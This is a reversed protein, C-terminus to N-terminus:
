SARTSAGPAAAMCGGRGPTPRGPMKWIFVTGSLHADDTHIKSASLGLGGQLLLLMNNHFCCSCVVQLFCYANAATHACCHGPFSAAAQDVPIYEASFQM